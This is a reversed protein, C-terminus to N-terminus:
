AAKATAQSILRTVAELRQRPDHTELLQQKQPIDLEAHAAILDALVGPSRIEALREAVGPALLNERTAAYAQLAALASRAVGDAAPGEFRAASELTADATRFGGDQGFRLISARQRSRVLLKIQGAPLVTRELVDAVVGVRYIADPPPDDDARDKQTVLLVEQEGQYADALALKSMARGVFVPVTLKPFVVIDRLLLAPGSWTAPDAVAPKTTGDAEILGALVQWDKLGFSRAILELSETHTLPWGKQALAERLRRAMAKADRYDRM